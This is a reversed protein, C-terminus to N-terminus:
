VEEPTTAASGAGLNNTAGEPAQNSGECQVPAVQKKSDTIVVSLSGLEVQGLASIM